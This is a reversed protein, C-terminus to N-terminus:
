SCSIGRGKPPGRGVWLGRAQSSWLSFELQGDRGKEQLRVLGSPRALPKLPLVQSCDPSVHGEQHSLGHAHVRRAATYFETTKPPKLQSCLSQFHLAGQVQQLVAGPRVPLFVAPSRGPWSAPIGFSRGCAEPAPRPPAPSSPRGAGSVWRNQFSASGCVAEAKQM